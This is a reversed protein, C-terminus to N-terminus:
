RQPRTAEDLVTHLSEHAAALREHHDGLPTQDLDSLRVLAADVDPHGTTPPPNRPTDDM